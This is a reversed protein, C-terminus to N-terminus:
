LSAGSPRWDLLDDPVQCVARDWESLGTEHLAVALVAADPSSWRGSKRDNLQISWRKRKNSLHLVGIPTWYEFAMHM